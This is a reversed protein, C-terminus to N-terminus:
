PCLSGRLAAIIRERFVRSVEANADVADFGHYAGEVRDLEVPVGAARLREAYAVDEDHFLDLTGVGIWAPPLGSLDEARAPVAHQPLKSRDVTRLYADWGLANSRRDWVRLQADLPGSGLASRDDLMPYVLLQLAPPAEGQDRLRQCLAAALGGGASVGAVAVREADVDPQGLLWRWAQECDNLPIPFPQEPAVRYQVATIVIGLADAARQLFPADQRADGMILGGGHIWLLGARRGETASAPRFVYVCCGDLPAHELGRVGLGTLAFM